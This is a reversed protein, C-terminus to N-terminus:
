KLKLRWCYEEACNGCPRWWQWRGPEFKCALFVDDFDMLSHLGFFCCGSAMFFAMWGHHFDGHNEEGFSWNKMTKEMPLRGQGRHNRSRPSRMAVAHGDAGAAFDSLFQHTTKVFVGRFFSPTVRQYVLM